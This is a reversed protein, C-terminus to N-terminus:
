PELSVGFFVYDWLENEWEIQDMPVTVLYEDIFGNEDLM